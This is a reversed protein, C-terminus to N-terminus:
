TDLTFYNIGCLDLDLAVDLLQPMWAIKSPYTVLVLSAGDEAKAAQHASRAMNDLFESFIEKTQDPTGPIQDPGLTLSACHGLVPVGRAHLDEMMLETTRKTPRDGASLFYPQQLKPREVSGELLTNIADKLHANAMIAEFSVPEQSPGFLRVPPDVIEPDAHCVAFVDIAPM